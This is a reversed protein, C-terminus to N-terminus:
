EKANGITITGNQNKTYEFPPVLPEWSPDILYILEQLKSHAEFALTANTGMQDCIQQPTLTPNNWMIEFVNKATAKMVQLCMTNQMKIEDLATIPPPILPNKILSM